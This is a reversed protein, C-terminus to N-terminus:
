EERTNIHKEVEDLRVRLVELAKLSAERPLSKLLVEAMVGVVVMAVIADSPLQEMHSHVLSIIEDDSNAYKRDQEERYAKWATHMVRAASPSVRPLVIEMDDLHHRLVQATTSLALILYSAPRQSLRESSVWEDQVVCMEDLTALLKEQADM